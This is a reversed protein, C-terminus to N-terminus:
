PVTSANPASAAVPPTNTEGQMRSQIRTLTLGALNPQALSYWHRAHEEIHARTTSTTSQAYDWWADGLEAQQLGDIPHQLDQTALDRLRADSGMALHPLGVTWQGKRLAYFRGVFL